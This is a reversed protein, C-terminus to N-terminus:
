SSKQKTESDYGYIWSEAGTIITSIFNPDNKTQEKLESCKAVRHIKQDSGLLTPVFKATIHRM